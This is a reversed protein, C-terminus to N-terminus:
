RNRKTPQDWPAPPKRTQSKYEDEHELYERETVAYEDDGYIVRYMQPPEWPKYKEDDYAIVMWRVKDADIKLEIRIQHPEKFPRKVKWICIGKGEREFWYFAKQLKPDVYPDLEISEMEAIYGPWTSGPKCSYFKDVFEQPDMKNVGANKEYTKVWSPWDILQELAVQDGAKLAAMFAEAAAKVAEDNLLAKRAEPTLVPPTPEMGPEPEPEPKPHTRHWEAEEARRRETQQALAFDLLEDPSLKGDDDKDFPQMQQWMGAADLAALKALDADTLRPPGQENWADARTRYLKWETLTLTQDDDADAALWVRVTVHAAYRELVARRADADDGAHRVAATFAANGAMMEAFRFEGDHDADYLALMATFQASAADDDASQGACPAPVFWALAAAVLVIPVVVHRM